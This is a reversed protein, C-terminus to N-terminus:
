KSLDVNSGNITLNITEKAGTNNVDITDKLGRLKATYASNLAGAASGADLYSHISDQIHTAISLLDKDIKDNDADLYGQFTANSIVGFSLFGSMTLPTQYPVRVIEGARDGSKILENKYFVTEECHKKYEDFMVTLQEATYKINAGHKKRLEWYKNGLPAGM